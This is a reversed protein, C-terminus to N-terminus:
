KALLPCFTRVGVQTGSDFSDEDQKSTNHIGAIVEFFTAMESARKRVQEDSLDEGFQKRWIRLFEEVEKDTLM